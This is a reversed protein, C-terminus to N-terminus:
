VSQKFGAFPQFPQAPQVLPAPAQAPQAPANKYDTKYKYAFHKMMIKNLDVIKQEIANMKETLVSMRYIMNENKENFLIKSTEIKLDMTAIQENLKAIMENKLKADEKMKIFDTNASECFTSLMEQTIQVNSYM